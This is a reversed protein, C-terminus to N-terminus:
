VDGSGGMARAAQELWAAWTKPMGLGLAYRRIQDSTAGDVIAREIAGVLAPYTEELRSLSILDLEAGIASLDATKALIAMIVGMRNNYPAM